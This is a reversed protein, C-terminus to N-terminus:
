EDGGAVVVELEALEAPVTPLKGLRFLADIGARRGDRM